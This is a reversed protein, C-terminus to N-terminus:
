SVKGLEPDMSFLEPGQDRYETLIQQLAPASPSKCYIEAGWALYYVGDKPNTKRPMVVIHYADKKVHKILEDYEKKKIGKYVIVIHGHELNHVWYETPQNDEYIGWAVPAKDAINAHDGSTPPNDKYVVNEDTHGQGEIKEEKLETCGNAKREKADFPKDTILAQQDTATRTEDTSGSYRKGYEGCAGAILAAVVVLTVIWIRRGV